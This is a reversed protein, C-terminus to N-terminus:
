KSAKRKKKAETKTGTGEINGKNISAYFIKKGKEKGYEKEMAKEIKKGKKTTPM